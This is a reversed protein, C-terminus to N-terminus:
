IGLQVNDTRLYSTHRQNQPPSSVEANVGESLEASALVPPDQRELRVEAGEVAVKVIEEGRLSLCREVGEWM